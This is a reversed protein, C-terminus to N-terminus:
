LYSLSKVEVAHRQAALRIGATTMERHIGNNVTFMLEFYRKTPVWFRYGLVIAAGEFAEIGIVPVPSKPLDNTPAIVKEIIASAKDPDATGDIGVRGEVLRNAYSNRHIEGVIHKNPIIIDEGDEAVLHTTALDISTVVGSCKQVNITDGVKYMRTMIIILGAGYNSVPGQLAFSAGVALGGIAAILPTISIGLKSVAIILFLGIVALRATSAIFQRLTVDVNRREQMRLVIRSVWGGIVFGAILIVIAGAIQFSYTVLFNIILEYIQQAVEIEQKM